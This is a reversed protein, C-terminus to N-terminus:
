CIDVGVSRVFFGDYSVDSRVVMREGPHFVFHFATPSYRVYYKQRRYNQSFM